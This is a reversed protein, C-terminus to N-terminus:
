LSLASHSSEKETGLKLVQKLVVAVLIPGGLHNLPLSGAQWHLVSLLSPNRPNPLDGPSPFPLGSCYEQRSFGMFLTAQHAVTGLIM